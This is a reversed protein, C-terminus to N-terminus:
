PRLEEVALVAELRALRRAAEDPDSPAPDIAADARVPGAQVELRELRSWVERETAADLRHPLLAVTM